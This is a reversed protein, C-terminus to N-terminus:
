RIMSFFYDWKLFLIDAKVDIVCRRGLGSELLVRVGYESVGTAQAIESETSGVERNKV